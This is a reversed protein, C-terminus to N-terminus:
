SFQSLSERLPQAKPAAPQTRTPTPLSEAYPTLRSTKVIQWRRQKRQHLYSYWNSFNHPFQSTIPISSLAPPRGRPHPFLLPGHTSSALTQCAPVTVQKSQGYIMRGSKLARGLVWHSARAKKRQVLSAGLYLIPYASFCGCRALPQLCHWESDM